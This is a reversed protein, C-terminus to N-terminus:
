SDQKINLKKCVTILMTIYCSLGGIFNSIPEALFVGTSGLNLYRPLLITLPVVIIIKRLLSFFIAQKSKGLAVYTAQGAIQLSMMFFGFFYLNICPVGKTILEKDNNFIKIFFEPFIRLVLWMISTYCICVISLFKIGSIVRHYKKAGYNFGLVPQSASTIGHVPMIIIQRVSNIITMIGIYLDGGYIQLTVNCVIQVVSNTLAMIFGSLGLLVIRKLYVWKIKFNKKKLSLLADKSTLFRIVWFCSLFQSIVTALAAGKVGLNFVFIFIPDLVINTIAGLLVTMMGIKGFGQCNIFSNMGLSIMVFISGLLYITIYDNAYTFTQSSSGFLFLLPKKFILGLVSILIGFISLLAFSNGMINEAEEINGKGRAISCLPAGGMGFLNAFAMVTSIIPLTIGLGTIALTSANPIRGIYFRDVINYLINIIQALTMPIALNLIHKSISGKAFDNKQGM